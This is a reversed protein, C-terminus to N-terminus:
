ETKKSSAQQELNAYYNSIVTQIEDVPIPQGTIEQYQYIIGEPETIVLVGGLTIGEGILNGRLGRGKLRQKMQQYDSYLTFPNTTFIQRLLSRKGLAEYFELGANRYLQYPFYQKNFEDVGLETDTPAGKVPAIEKIIGVM